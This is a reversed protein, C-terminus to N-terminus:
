KDEGLEQQREKRYRGRMDHNKVDHCKRDRNKTDHCKTNRKRDRNKHQSM